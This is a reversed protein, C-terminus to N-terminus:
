AALLTKEVWTLLIRRAEEVDIAEDGIAAAICLGDFLGVLERAAGAADVAEFEGERVGQAIVQEFAGRWERYRESHAAALRPEHVARAWYELWLRWNRLAEPKDPLATEILLLLRDRASREGEAAALNRDTFEKSGSRLAEVLLDDMSPFHHTLTGTSIGCRAAIERATARGLGSEAIVQKAAELILAQRVEPRHRRRPNRTTSKTARPTMPSAIEQIACNNSLTRAGM